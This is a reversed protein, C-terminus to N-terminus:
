DIGNFSLGAVIAPAGVVAATTVAVLLGAWLFRIRGTM